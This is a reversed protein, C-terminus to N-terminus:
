TALWSWRRGGGGPPGQPAPPRRPTFPPPPPAAGRPPSQRGRAPPPPPPGGQTPSAIPQPGPPHAPDLEPDESSRLVHGGGSPPDIVVVAAAQAPGGAICALRDGVARLQPPYFSTFPLELDNLTGDPELIGLRQMPGLGPIPPILGGPLFPSTPLGFVWPPHGFGEEAPALAELAGDAGVRYLNWWGSADCVLHLVGDPSWAPQFVSEERGGAVTGPDGALGDDALTALKLETGDWPMNPHDWELWALRRGDPSVRPTAYFDRGA